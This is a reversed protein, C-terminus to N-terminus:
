DIYKFRLLEQKRDEFEEETIIGDDCLNKFKRIEDAPSCYPKKQEEKEQIGRIYPMVEAFEHKIFQLDKPDITVDSFERYWSDTDFLVENDDDPAVMINKLRTYDITRGGRENICSAIM